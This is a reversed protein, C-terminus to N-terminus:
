ENSAGTLRRCEQEIAPLEEPTDLNYRVVGTVVDIHIDDVHALSFLYASVKLAEADDHFPFSHPAM